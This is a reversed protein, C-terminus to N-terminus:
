LFTTRLNSAGAEDTTTESVRRASGSSTIRYVTTTTAVPTGDARADAVRLVLLAAEGSTDSELTWTAETTGTTTRRSADSYRKASYVVGSSGVKAEGPLGAYSVVEIFEQQPAPGVRGLLRLGQRSYFDQATSEVNVQRNGVELTMRVPTVKRLAGGQGAFEAVTELMSQEYQGKGQVPVGNSTGEVTFALTSNDTVSSNYAAEVNFSPREQQNDQAAVRALSGAGGGCAGLCASICIGFAILASRGIM